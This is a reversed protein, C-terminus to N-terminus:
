RHLVSTSDGPVRVGQAPMWPAWSPGTDFAGFCRNASLLFEDMIGM